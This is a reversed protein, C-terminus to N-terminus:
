ITEPITSKDFIVLLPVKMRRWYTDKSTLSPYYKWHGWLKTNKRFWIIESSTDYHFTWFSITLSEVVCCLVGSQTKSTWLADLARPHTYNRTVCAPGTTGQGGGFSGTVPLPLRWDDRASACARPVRRPACACASRPRGATCPLRSAPSHAPSSPVLSLLLCPACPPCLPLDSPVPRPRTGAGNYSRFTSRGVDDLVFEWTCLIRCRQTLPHGGSRRWVYRLRSRCCCLVPLRSSVPVHHFWGGDTHCREPWPRVPICSSVAACRDFCFLKLVNSSEFTFTVNRIWPYFIFILLIKLASDKYNIM